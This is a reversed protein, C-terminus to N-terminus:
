VAGALMITGWTILMIGGLYSLRTGWPLTRELFIWLSLGLAWMMNMLGVAFM